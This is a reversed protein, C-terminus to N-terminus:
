APPSSHDALYALVGTYPIRRLRGIMVSRLDGTRILDYVTTRGVKLMEAAEEVTLVVPHEQAPMPGAAEGVREPTAPHALLAALRLRQDLTLSSASRALRQIFRDVEDTDM